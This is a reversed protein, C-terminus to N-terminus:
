TYLENLLVARIEAELSENTNVAVKGPTIIRDAATNRNDDCQERTTKCNISSKMFLFYYISHTHFVSGKISFSTTRLKFRSYVSVSVPATSIIQM